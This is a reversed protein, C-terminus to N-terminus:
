AICGNGKSGTTLIFKFAMHNIYVITLHRSGVVLWRVKALCQVVALTEWETTIYQSKANSLQFSLFLIIKKGMEHKSNAKTELPKGPLQFPVGRIGTKSADTALHFQIKPDASAMANETISQKIDNFLAQQKGTWEWEKEVWQTQVSKKNSVKLEKLPKLNVLNCEEVQVKPKSAKINAKEQRLYAEQFKLVHKLWRLMFIQLFPTLWIFADFEQRNTPTPWNMFRERCKVSLRTRLSRKWVRATWPIECFCTNQPANPLCTWISRLLFFAVWPVYVPQWLQNRSGHLWEHFAHIGLGQSRRHVNTPSWLQHRKFNTWLSPWLIALLHAIKRQSRTGNAPLLISQTTYSDRNQVQTREEYASGLSRKIRQHPHFVQIKTKLTNWASRGSSANPISTEPHVQQCTHLQTCSM